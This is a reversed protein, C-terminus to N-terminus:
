NTIMSVIVSKYSILAASKATLSFELRGTNQVIDNSSLPLVNVPHVGSLIATTSSPNPASATPIFQEKPGSSNYGITFLITATDLRGTIVCGLAPSGTIVGSPSVLYSTLGSCNESQISFYMFSPTLM